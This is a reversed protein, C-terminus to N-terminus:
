NRIIDTRMLTGKIMGKDGAAVSSRLKINAIPIDTVGNSTVVRIIDNDSVAYINFIKDNDSLKIVNNGGTARKHVTLAKIDFKNIKGKETIVVVYNSDPYVVSIGQIPEDSNMAKSGQSMRKVLPIDRMPARLAKKTSYMIVDLGIPAIALGKVEDTSSKSTTYILGSANVNEFDELDMRKVLNDKTISVLYHKRSGKAFKIIMPEYFVAIIDATLNKCLIRIDIGSSQKDTLQLKYIPLKFVKGKNDFLLISEQNDVLMVFKPNDKHIVNIKDTEQLKRIYNKETIIIKFTGAPIGDADQAKIVRCKRPEGYKKEIEVLEQDIEKKISKGDDMIRSECFKIEKVLEKYEAKYKNLYGKSLQSISTTLIYSAQLDTMKFKNIIYEALTNSDTVNQKKVFNTLDDIKGSEIFDIYTELKHRRTDAVARRNCYIRLKTTMRMDIFRQLYEKYGMRRPNIDDVVLFNVGVTSQVKTKAYILQKVYEVDAGKKLVIRIDISEKSASNIDSVMPLQKAKYLEMLKDIVKSESVHDPLSVIHIIPIDKKTREVKIIGRVTYKGTGTHSIEKWDANFIEIPQCHDPILIPDYNPDAMLKRTAELVEVLNHPPIYSHVGVGIGSSGEIILLPVKVPLYEPEKYERTYNDQWNVARKSEKLESIVCDYAFPSLTAETYREAAPGDGMMTGWNGQGKILPIKYNFNQAMVVMSGYSSSHPHYKGMTDGTIRASKLTNSGIANLELMDYLIRREVVKLGDKVEPFARRRNVIILYKVMDDRYMIDSREDQINEM